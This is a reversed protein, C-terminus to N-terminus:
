HLFSEDISYVEVQPILSHITALIRGHMEGYLEYNSSLLQVNERELLDQIQFVPVAMSIPLARAQRNRSIACADNNSLVLQVFGRGTKGLSGPSLSTRM